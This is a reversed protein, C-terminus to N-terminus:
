RRPADLGWIFDLHAWDPISKHSVLHKIKPLLIAIDKPDSLLDKGGTWVATPVTMDNVKYLPPTLQKHKIKNKREDGWDFGKFLGSRFNNVFPRRSCITALAKRVLWKQPLFEKKGFLTSLFTEPLNLLKIIPSKAYKIRTVPGLAFFMKIKQALEPMTSFALFGIAAGQSYGVYYLQQQGTKQLIFNVVAPLDYKAMEDFSFAWFEDESVSLNQHSRSWTNGRSNGIWVDYGADALIFGLSNHAFNTVWNSGDGLLGHQLFVVPKMGFDMQYNRGSPIRNLTLIYGDATIVRYEESLYGKHIILENKQIVLYFLEVLKGKAVPQESTHFTSIGSLLLEIDKPDAVTDQGGSWVATPVLLDKIQYSPPSSQKYIMQNKDEYDFYHFLGTDLVQKWHLITKVSTIDPFHAAYVDIRSMNLNTTNYTDPFFILKACLKHMFAITCLKKMFDKIPKQPFMTNKDGFIQKFSYQPLLSLLKLLNNPVYTAYIVPALALFMRIKKSLEPMASFAIFGDKTLVEYEESPYGHHSIMQSKPWSETHVRERKMRRGAQGNIYLVYTECSQNHKTHIDLQNILAKVDDPAVLLDNGGYWISIPVTIREVNYSPPEDQNYREKNGDGYDFARFQGTGLSTYKSRINFRYAHYQDQKITLHQHKRSWSTGRNNGIWVDYGADALMFGLSQNPMNAVWVRGEICLGHQLLVAPKGTRILYRSGHQKRGHPIRNLTLIYGDSTVIEYEEAQYGKHHIIES